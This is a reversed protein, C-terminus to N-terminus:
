VVFVDKGLRQILSVELDSNGFNLIIWLSMTGSALGTTNLNSLISVMWSFTEM